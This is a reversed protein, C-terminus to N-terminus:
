RRSAVELSRRFELRAKAMEEIIGPDSFRGNEPIDPRMTYPSRRIDSFSREALLQRSATAPPAKPACDQAAEPANTANHGHPTFASPKQAEQSVTSAQALVLQRPAGLGGLLEDDEVLAFTQATRRTDRILDQTVRDAAYASWYREVDGIYGQTYSHIVPEGAASRSLTGGNYHSLAASWNRDYLFYLRELFEVGMRINTRADWLMDPDAAFESRATLPMIQMVGRAGASSEATADFNSEVRAVALALYVPVTPNLDAEEIIIEQISTIGQMATVAMDANAESTLPHLTVTAALLIASMRALRTQILAM